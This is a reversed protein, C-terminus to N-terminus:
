CVVSIMHGYSVHITYIYICILAYKTAYKGVNAQNEYIRITFTCLCIMCPIPYGVEEDDGFTPDRREGWSKCSTTPDDDHCQAADEAGLYGTAGLTSFDGLHFKSLNKWMAGKKPLSVQREQTQLTLYHDKLLTSMTKGIIQLQPVGRDACYSITGPQSQLQFM